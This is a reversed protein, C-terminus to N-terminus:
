MTALEDELSMDRTSCFNELDAGLRAIERRATDFMGQVDRLEEELQSLRANRKYRIYDQLQQHKSM